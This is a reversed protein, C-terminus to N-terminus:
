VGMWAPIAIFFINRIQMIIGVEDPDALVADHEAKTEGDSKGEQVAQRDVPVAGKVFLAAASGCLFSSSRTGFKTHFLGKRFGEAVQCEVVEQGHEHGPVTGHHNVRAHM